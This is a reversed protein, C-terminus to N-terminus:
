EGKDFKGVWWSVLIVLLIGACISLIAEVLWIKTLWEM